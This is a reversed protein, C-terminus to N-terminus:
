RGRGGRGQKASQDGGKPGSVSGWITPMEDHTIRCDKDKDLHKFAPNPKELLEALAITGNGDSDFFALDATVFLKDDSSFSAFEARTVVGNHDADAKDFLQRLYTKWEDCTVVGDHDLDWTEAAQIFTTDTSSLSAESLTACGALLWCM